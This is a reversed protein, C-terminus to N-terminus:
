VLTCWMLFEVTKGFPNLSVLHLM